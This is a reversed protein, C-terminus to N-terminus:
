RIIPFEIHKHVSFEREGFFDLVAIIDASIMFHANCYGCTCTNGSQKAYITIDKKEICLMDGGICSLEDFVKQKLVEIETDIFLNGCSFSVVDNDAILAIVSMEVTQKIRDAQHYLVTKQVIVFFLPLM